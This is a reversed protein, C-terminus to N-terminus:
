VKIDTIEVTTLYQRHGTKKDYGKRRKYKYVVIKEGRDQELVKGNVSAQSLYPRGVETKENGGVLLVKDFCVPSGVEQPLKEVRLRDGKSVKYQKGGTAIIAYM